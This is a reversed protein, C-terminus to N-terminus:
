SLTGGTVQGATNYNITITKTGDSAESTFLKPM